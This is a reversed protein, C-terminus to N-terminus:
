LPSRGAVPQTVSASSKNTGASFELGGDAALLARQDEPENLLQRVLPLLDDIGVPKEIYAAGYSRAEAELVPDPYGTTAIIPCDPHALHQRVVLHLGNYDGLRIDVILLDPIREDLLRKAEPFGRVATVEYGYHTLLESLGQLTAPNDEVVFIRSAMPIEQNRHPFARWVADFATVAILAGTLRSAHDPGVVV